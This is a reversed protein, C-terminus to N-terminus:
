FLCPHRRRRRLNSDGGRKQVIPISDDRDNKGTPNRHDPPIGDDSISARAPGDCPPGIGDVLFPFREPREGRLGVWFEPIQHDVELDIIVTEGVILDGNLFRDKSPSIGMAIQRHEGQSRIFGSSREEDFEADRRDVPRDWQDFDIGVAFDQIGPWPCHEQLLGVVVSSRHMTELNTHWVESWTGEPGHLHFKRVVIARIV